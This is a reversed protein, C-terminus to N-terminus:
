GGPTAVPAVPTPTSEPPPGEDSRSEAREAHQKRRRRKEDLESSVEPVIGEPQRGLAIGLLGTALRQWIILPKFTGLVPLTAETEGFKDVLFVPMQFLIGGVLAGSVVSAGGVVILIVYPLGQLVQYNVTAASGRLMGLLAGGFGAIAASLAFVAVKTTLLNVGLTACAAPSDKMAQLRRGFAGRRM